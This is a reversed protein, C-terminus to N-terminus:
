RWRMLWGLIETAFVSGFGLHFQLQNLASRHCFSTVKGLMGIKFLSIENFQSTQKTQKSSVIKVEKLADIELTM